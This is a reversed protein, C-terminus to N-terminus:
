VLGLVVGYRVMKARLVTARRIKVLSSGAGNRKNGFICHGWRKKKKKKGLSFNSFTSNAPLLSEMSSGFTVTTAVSSLLSHLLPPYRPVSLTHYDIMSPFLDLLNPWRSHRSRARRTQTTRKNCYLVSSCVTICPVAQETIRDAADAALARTRVCGASPSSSAVLQRSKQKVLALRPWLKRACIEESNGPRGHGKRQLEIWISRSRGALDGSRRDMCINRSCYLEWARVHVCRDASRDARRHRTPPGSRVLYCIYAHFGRAGGGHHIM